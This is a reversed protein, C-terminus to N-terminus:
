TGSKVYNIGQKLTKSDGSETGSNYITSNSTDESKCISHEWLIKYEKNATNANHNEENIEKSTTIPYKLDIIEQKIKRAKRLLKECEDEEADELSVFSTKRKLHGKAVKDISKNKSLNGLYIQLKKIEKKEQKHRERLAKLRIRLVDCDRQAKTHLYKIRETISQNRTDRSLNGRRTYAVKPAYAHRTEMVTEKYNMSKELVPILNVPILNFIVAKSPAVISKTYNSLNPDITKNMDNKKVACIIDTNSINSSLKNEEVKSVCPRNYKKNITIKLIPVKSTVNVDSVTKPVSM